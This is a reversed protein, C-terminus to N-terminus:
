ENPINLFVEYLYNIFRLIDHAYVYLTADYLSETRLIIKGKEAEFLFGSREAVSRLTSICKLDEPVSLTFSIENDSVTFHTKVLANGFVEALLVRIFYAFGRPSINVTGDFREPFDLTIAGEFNRTVFQYVSKFFDYCSFRQKSYDKPEVYADRPIRYIYKECEEAIM